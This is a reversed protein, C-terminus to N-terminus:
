RSMSATWRSAVMALSTRRPPTRTTTASDKNIFCCNSMLLRARRRAGFRFENSRKTKPRPDSNTGCASDRLKRDDQLGSGQQSEVLRELFAFIPPKERRSPMPAGSWFPWRLFEDVRDDLELAAIGTNATGADCLLNRTGKADIDVFVDDAAHERFVISGFCSCITRGPQAKDPMHLVAQPADIQKAAFRYEQAAMPDHHHHVHECTPDNAKANLASIETAGRNAPHEVPDDGSLRKRPVQTGVM